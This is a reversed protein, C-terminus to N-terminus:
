IELYSGVTEGLGCKWEQSDLMQEAIEYQLDHTPTHLGTSLGKLSKKVGREIFWRCSYQVLSM